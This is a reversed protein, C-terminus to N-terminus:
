TCNGTATVPLPAQGSNPSVSLTCSPPQNTTVTITQSTSGKNGHSDSASFMAQYTGPQAYTHSASTGSQTATGDGFNFSQSSAILDNGADTCSGTFNVTLPAQGTQKDSNLTCMPTSDVPTTVTITLSSTGTHQTSDTATFTAIYTGPAQYVHSVNSFAAPSVQQAPTNDGFNLTGTSGQGLDNGADQCSGSFTVTFPAAGNQSDSSLSCKPTSDVPQTVTVTQNASGKLGGADTGTVVAMYTGPSTYTHPGSFSCSGDCNLSQPASGDGWDISATNVNDDSDSCNATANVTLPATGNNKDLTLTCTPPQNQTVTITVTATGTHQSDDTVTYTATYTGPSQYVHSVNSFTGGNATSISQPPTGDGFNLAGTSGASSIDNGADTCSGSFSVTLPNVGGSTNSSLTCAPTSDVVTVTKSTSGTTQLDDSAQLTVTYTGTSPYTHGGQFPNCTGDCNLSDSTGDGWTISGNQLFAQSTCNSGSANVTLPAPGSQKDLILNCTPSPGQATIRQNVQTGTFSDTARAAANYIGPNTYTHTGQFPRCPGDCVLNTSTGDGWVIDASRIDNEPDSCSVNATITLPAPGINKDVTFTCTPSANVSVGQSAQGSQGVVDTATVTVFYTAAQPNTYTHSGSITAQSTGAPEQQTLPTSGDGFDLTLTALPLTGQTCTGSASVSLPAPGGAPNVSITCTPPATQAFSAACWVLIPIFSRFLTDVWRLRGLFRM